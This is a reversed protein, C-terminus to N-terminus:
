TLNLEGYSGYDTTLEEGAAIDRLAFFNGSEEDCRMNPTKSHNLYYSIGIENLSFPPIDFHGDNEPCMDRVLKLLPEPLGAVQAVSMEEFEFTRKEQMPDIGKPIPRIAFVGVGHIPSPALRCYVKELLDRKFDFKNM